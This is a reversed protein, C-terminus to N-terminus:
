SRSTPSPSAASSAPCARAPDDDQRSGAADGEVSLVFLSPAWLTIGYVGTQAGANGLWSVLLSRPYKFLDFWSTKIIPGADAATPLPLASRNWRCRGPSRSARRRTAARGACGARARRAGLPPGAAGALAPLVGIAFLLRWQDSGMLAGM